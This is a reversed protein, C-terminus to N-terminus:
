RPLPLEGSWSFGLRPLERGAVEVPGHAVLRGGCASYFHRAPNAALVWVLVPHLGRGVLSWISEVLLERGLGRGQAKPDLYLEYIEGHHGPVESRHPGLWAYGRPEGDDEHVLLLSQVSSRLAARMRAASRRDDIAALEQEPLVGRYAHHWSRRRLSALAPLDATTAGRM